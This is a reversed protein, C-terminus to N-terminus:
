EVELFTEATFEADSNKDWIKVQWKVPNSIAGKTTILSAQISQEVLEPALKQNLFLDTQDLIIREDDDKVLMTMGIEITGDKITFGKLGEFIFLMKDNFGVKRNTIVSKRETSFLYCEKYSLKDANISIDPDKVLEIEMSSTLVGNGKLDTLTYIVDYSNSSLIPNAFSIRGVLDKMDTNLGIKSNQLLSPYKLVTDGKKSVVAVALNPYYKGNEETFGEIEKFTTVLTKGYVLIPEELPEDDVTVAVRSASLGENKNTLGINSDKNFNCSTIIIISCVAVLQLAYNKM